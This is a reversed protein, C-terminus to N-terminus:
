SLCCSQCGSRHCTPLKHNTTVSHWPALPVIKCFLLNKGSERLAGNFDISKLPQLEASQLAAGGWTWVKKRSPPFEGSQCGSSSPSQACLVHAGAAGLSRQVKCMGTVSSCRPQSSHMLNGHRVCVFIARREFFLSFDLSSLYSLAIDKGQNAFSFTSGTGRMLPIGSNRWMESWYGALKTHRFLFRFKTFGWTTTTFGWTGKHENLSDPSSRAGGRFSRM